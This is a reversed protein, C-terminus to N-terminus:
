DDFAKDYQYSIIGDTIIIEQKGDSLKGSFTAYFCSNRNIIVDSTFEGKLFDGDFSVKDIYQHYHFQQIINKGTKKYPLIVAIGQERLPDNSRRDGNLHLEYGKSRLDIGYGLAQFTQPTGNVVMSISTPKCNLDEAQNEDDRNCSVTVLVLIAFLLNQIKTESKM